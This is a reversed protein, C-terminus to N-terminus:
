FSTSTYSPKSILPNDDERQWDWTTVKGSPFHSEDSVLYAFLRIQEENTSNEGGAHLCHNTFMIMERPYVTMNRIDLERLTRDNLWMFNFSNLGVIISVPRFRPELEEVSQPYDSQLKKSHGVYQSEAGTFKKYSGGQFVKTYPIEGGEDDKDHQTTKTNDNNSNKIGSEGGEDNSNNVLEATSSVVEEETTATTNATTNVSSTWGWGGIGM